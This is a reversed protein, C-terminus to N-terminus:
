FFFCIKSIILFCEAKKEKLPLLKGLKQTFVINLLNNSGKEQSVKSYIRKPLSKQDFIQLQKSYKNYKHPREAVNSSIGRKLFRNARLKM